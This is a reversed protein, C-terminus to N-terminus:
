PGDLAAAGGARYLLFASRTRVLADTLEAPLQSGAPAQQVLIDCGVIM